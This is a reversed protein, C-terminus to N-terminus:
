FSYPLSTYLLFVFRLSWTWGLFCTLSPLTKPIVPDRFINSWLLLLILFTLAKDSSQFNIFSNCYNSFCRNLFFPSSRLLFLMSQLKKVQRIGEWGEEYRGYDKIVMLRAVVPPSLISKSCGLLGVGLLHYSMLWHKVQGAAELFAENM